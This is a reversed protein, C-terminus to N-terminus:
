KSQHRVLPGVIRGNALLKFSKGFGSLVPFIGSGRGSHPTHFESHVAWARGLLVYQRQFFTKLIKLNITFITPLIHLVIVCKPIIKLKKSHLEMMVRTLVSLKSTRSITNCYIPLPDEVSLFYWSSFFVTIILSFWTCCADFDVYDASCLWFVRTDDCVMWCNKVFFTKTHLWIQIWTPSNRWCVRHWIRVQDSPVVHGFEASEVSAGNEVCSPFQELGLELIVNKLPSLTGSTLIVSHCDWLARMSFVSVQWFSSFNTFLHLKVNRLRYLGLISVSM